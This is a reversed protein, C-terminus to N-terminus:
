AARAFEGHLRERECRVAEVASSLDKFRGLKRQTGNHSIYAKWAKHSAEWCVGKFGSKNNKQIKINCRNQGNSAERLNDFRNNLRDGDIHDIQDQPECGTVMKWIIRHSLFYNRDIGVMLYGCRGITGCRGVPLGKFKPNSKWSLVGTLPDYSFLERLREVPPLPRIDSRRGM